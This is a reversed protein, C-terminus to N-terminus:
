RCGGGEANAKSDTLVMKSPEALARKILDKNDRNNALIRFELNGTQSIIREIRAIEAEDKEPIIVEVQEVGYTRITVEKQGGPNVRRKIADLLQEMDITQGPEKKSQDVEYVLIAGGSLDVGLKVKPGLLLVAVSALLRFLIVSIKWGHDPMRLKKGLYDGLFFSVALVAVAVLLKVWALSSSEQAAAEAFLPNVYWPM